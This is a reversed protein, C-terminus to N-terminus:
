GDSVEKKKCQLLHQRYEMLDGMVLKRLSILSRYTYKCAKALEDIKDNIANAKEVREHLLENFRKDSIEM